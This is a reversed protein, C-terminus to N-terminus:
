ARPAESGNADENDGTVDACIRRCQNRLSRWLEDEDVEADFFVERVRDLPDTSEDIWNDTLTVYPEAETSVDYWDSGAIINHRIVNGEPRAPDDVDLLGVLDPYRERWPDSGVPTAAFKEPLTRPVSGIEDEDATPDERYIHYRAWNLGRADVHIADECNVFINHEVLNDRGGGIHVAQDARYFVNEVVTFGSTFDDLYVTRGGGQGPGSIHHFFNRRIITGRATWDRACVYFAGVDGTEQCVDHIENEEVLHDNGGVQMGSHPADHIHNGRATLGVGSLQIAPTYTRDIRSFHHIHNDEAVHDGATLTDRDGGRLHIGGKGPHYIHCERVVHETGGDITIAHGGVNRVVCDEFRVDTGGAVTIPTDRTAEFTVGEFRLHSAGDIALLSPQVSLTVTNDVLEEPPWLYLRREDRDIYWEGPSDLESLLNVARYRQGPRYGYQHHPEALEIVQETPDIHDVPHYEDSWDWFWYGHLWPDPEDRWREPRSGEYRIHGLRDGATGRVDFPEEWRVDAVTAFGDTPWQALPLPSDGLFLEPREGTRTPHGLDTIGAAALDVQVVEDRAEGPLRELSTKDTVAEFSDLRRGGSIVVDADPAARWTVPEDPPGGDGTEFELVEDLEYRGAPLTVTITGTGDHRRVLDRATRVHECRGLETVGANRNAARRRVVIQDDM